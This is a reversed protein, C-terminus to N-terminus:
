ELVVRRLEVPDSASRNSAAFVPATAITSTTTTTTTTAAAASTTTTTVPAGTAVIPKKNTKKVVPKPTVADAVAAATKKKRPKPPPSEARELLKKERNAIHKLVFPGIGKVKALDDVSAIADSEPHLNLQKMARYFTFALQQQKRVQALKALHTLHALFQERLSSM